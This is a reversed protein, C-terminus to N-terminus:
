SSTKPHCDARQDVFQQVYELCQDVFGPDWERFRALAAADWPGSAEANDTVAM